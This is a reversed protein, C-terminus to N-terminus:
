WGLNFGNVWAIGKGWGHTALYTDAPHGGGEAGGGGVAEEPM